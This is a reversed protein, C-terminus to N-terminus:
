DTQKQYPYEKNFGIIKILVVHDSKAPFMMAYECWSSRNDLEGVNSDM